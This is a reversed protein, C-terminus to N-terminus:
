FNLRRQRRADKLITILQEITCKRFSAPLDELQFTDIKGTQTKIIEKVIMNQENFKQNFFNIIENVENEDM